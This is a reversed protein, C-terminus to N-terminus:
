GYVKFFSVEGLHQEISTKFIFMAAPDSEKCSFEKGETTKRAPMQDPSPCSRTIFDLIRNVGIGYKASSCMVPYISRTIMGLRVGERMEDMTLGDNEFYKEMLAEDGEAANEM